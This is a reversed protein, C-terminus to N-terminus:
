RAAGTAYPIAAFTAAVELWGVGNLGPPPWASSNSLLESM